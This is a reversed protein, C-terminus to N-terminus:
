TPQDTFAFHILSPLQPEVNPKRVDSLDDVRDIVVLTDHVKRIDDAVVPTPLNNFAATFSNDDNPTLTAPTLGADALLRRVLAKDVAVYDHKTM